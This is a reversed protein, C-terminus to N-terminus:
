HRNRVMEYLIIGTAVSVNLSSIKGLLPISLVFDCKELSLRSIGKGESGVVLAAPGRLDRKKFINEGSMDACYIWIGLTKLKEITAAINSVKAIAIHELAGASSKSVTETLGACRRKPIIIGHM